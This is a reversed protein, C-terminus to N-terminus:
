VEQPYPVDSSGLPIFQRPNEPAMRSDKPLAGKIGPSGKIVCLRQGQDICGGGWCCLPSCSEWRGSSSRATLGQGGVRGRVERTISNEMWAWWSARFVFLWAEGWETKVWIFGCWIQEAWVLTGAWFVCAHSLPTSAPLRAGGDVSPRGAGGAHRGCATRSWCSRNRKVSREGQRSPWTEGPSRSMTHRNLFCFGQRIGKQLLTDGPSEM